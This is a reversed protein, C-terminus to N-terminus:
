TLLFCALTNLLAPKCRFTMSHTLKEEHENVTQVKEMNRTYFLILLPFVVNPPPPTCTTYAGRFSTGKIIKQNLVISSDLCSHNRTHYETKVTRYFQLSRIDTRRPHSAVSSPLQNRANRSLKTTKDDSAPLALFHRDQVTKSNTCMRESHQGTHRVRTLVFMNILGYQTWVYASTM